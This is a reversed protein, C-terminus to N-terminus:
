YAVNLGKIKTNSKLRLRELNGRVSLITDCVGDLALPSLDVIEFDNLLGNINNCSLNNVIIKTDAITGEKSNYMGAVYVPDSISTDISANFLIKGADKLGFDMKINSFLEKIPLYSLPLDGDIFDFSITIQDPYDMTFSVPFRLNIMKKEGIWLQSEQIFFKSEGTIKGKSDNLYIITEMPLQFEKVKFTTEKFTMNLGKVKTNSKLRLKEMGGRVFFVANCVGGLTVPSLDILKLEKLLDPINSLEFGQSDIGLDVEPVSSVKHVKGSLFFKGVNSASFYSNHLINLEDNVMSYEAKIDIEGSIGPPANNLPNSISVNGEISLDLSKASNVQKAQINMGSTSFLFGKAEIQMTANSVIVNEILLNKLSSEKLSFTPKDVDPSTPSRTLFSEKTDLNIKVDSLAINKIRGRLLESPKYHIVFSDCELSVGKQNKQDQLSVQELELGTLIDLHINGIKIKFNTRKSIQEEFFSTLKGSNILLSSVFVFAIISFFLSLFIIIIKVVINRM